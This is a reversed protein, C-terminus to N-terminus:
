ILAYNLDCYVVPTAGENEQYKVAFSSEFTIDPSIGVTYIFETNDYKLLYVSTSRPEHINHKNLTYFSLFSLQAGDVYLRVTSALQTSTHDLFVCGGYLVGKGSVSVLTTEANPTVTVNAQANQAGGYKPRVILQALAQYAIDVGRYYDPLGHAM